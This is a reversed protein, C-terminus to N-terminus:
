AAARTSGRNGALQGSQCWEVREGPQAAPQLPTPTTGAPAPVDEVAKEGLLRAAQGAPTETTAWPITDDRGTEPGTEQNLFTPTPRSAVAEAKTGVSTEVKYSGYFYAAPSMLREGEDLFFLCVIKFELGMSFKDMIIIISIQKGVSM